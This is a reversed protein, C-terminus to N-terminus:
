LPVTPSSIGSPTVDSAALCPEGLVGFGQLIAEELSLAPLRRTLNESMVRGISFLGDHLVLRNLKAGFGPTPVEGHCLENRCLYPTLGDYWYAHHAIGYVPVNLTGLLEVFDAGTINGSTRASEYLEPCVLRAVALFQATCYMLHPAALAKQQEVTEGEGWVARHEPGILGAVATMWACRQSLGPVRQPLGQREAAGALTEHNADTVVPQARVPFSMHKLSRFTHVKKEPRAVSTDVSGGAQVGSPTVIKRTAAGYAVYNREIYGDSYQVPEPIEKAEEAIIRFSFEHSETLFEIVYISTGDPHHSM